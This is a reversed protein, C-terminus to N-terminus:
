AEPESDLKQELWQAGLSKLKEWRADNLRITRPKTRQDVTLAPMRGPRARRLELGCPSVGLIRAAERLADAMVAHAEEERWPQSTMLGLQRRAEDKLAAAQEATIRASYNLLQLPMAAIAAQHAATCAVTSREFRYAMAPEERNFVSPAGTRAGKSDRYHAWSCPALTETIRCHM